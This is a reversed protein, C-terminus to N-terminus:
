GMSRVALRFGGGGGLGARGMLGVIQRGAGSRGVRGPGGIRCCSLQVSLGAKSGQLGGSRKRKVAM